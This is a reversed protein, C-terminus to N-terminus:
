SYSEFMMGPPPSAGGAHKSGADIPIGATAGNVIGADADIPISADAGIPIGATAGNVGTADIPIGPVDAGIPIGAAAGDSLLAASQAAAGIPNGAGAGAGNVGTGGIIVGGIRIVGPM